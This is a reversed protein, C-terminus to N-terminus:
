SARGRHIYIVVIVVLVGVIVALNRLNTSTKTNEKVTVDVTREFVYVNDDGQNPDGVARIRLQIRYDKPIADRDIRLIIVGEGTAGPALDGVYDTRKDLSFPQDAKVVGEILVSTAKEGGTNKLTIYVKVSEGQLPDPEFRIDVVEINPKAGIIIPVKLTVNKQVGLSNTYMILLPIEYTGSSANEAVNVRFSTQASDGKNLSGLGIVQQSTESLEFPWTPHPKIIVTRATGTGVNDIQIDVEVNDTGPLIKSPSTSVKSLILEARGTVDIGVLREDTIEKEDPESLYKLEIRLPYIGNELRDNAKIKFELTTSQGPQLEAVYKVNDEGIPLFADINQKALERMIQNLATQLNESLAESGQIPLQSLASLDVNKIEGQVPVQYSTIKLSLAKIPEAGTNEVTFRVTFTDGPSIEGPITEVKTIEVFGERSKKVTLAVFNYGQIMKMNAGLGTFYVVGVYLPYTGVDANPNIKIRFTLTTNEKGDLYEVYQIASGEPYFVSQSLGSQSLAMSVASAISSSDNFSVPAPSVFVNLYRVKLAGENRLHVKITVTDGPQVTEPIEVSSIVVGPATSARWEPPGSISIKIGNPYVELVTVYVTQDDVDVEVTEGERVPTIDPYTIPMLIDEKNIGLEPHEEITKVVANAIEKPSATNLWQYFGFANAMLCANFATTDNVYQSCSSVDYGQTEALALLFEPDLLLRQIKEPDPVYITKYEANLIKGDKMIVLFAYYEGNGYDKQTDTLSIILPGVLIAEGRSLYGEFLPSGTSASVASGLLGTILMLGLLVVKIKKM